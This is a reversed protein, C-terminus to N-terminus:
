NSILTRPRQQRVVEEQKLNLNRSSQASFVGHRFRRLLSFRVTLSIYGLFFYESHVQFIDLNRQSFSSATQAPERNIALSLGTVEAASKVTAPSKTTDLQRLFKERSRVIKEAEQYVNVAPRSGAPVSAGSLRYNRRAERNMPGMTKIM